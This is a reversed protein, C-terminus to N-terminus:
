MPFAEKAAKVAADVENPGSNPVRVWVRGTSPNYSDIYDDHPVFKGGIFNSLHLVNEAM